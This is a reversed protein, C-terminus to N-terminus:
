LARDRSVLFSDLSLSILVLFFQGFLDL